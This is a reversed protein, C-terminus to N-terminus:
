QVGRYAEIEKRTLEVDYAVLEICSRVNVVAHELFTHHTLWAM